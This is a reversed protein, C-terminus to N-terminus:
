VWQQRRLFWWLATAFAVMLGLAWFFGAPHDTLPMGSFNM